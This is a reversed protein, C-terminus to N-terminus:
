PCSAWDWSAGAAPHGLLDDITEIGLLSHLLGSDRLYVKPTKVLRKKINSHYPLLYRVMFTDQLIDLYNKVTPASIGLSAAIKQANCLQGHLHALMMWFRQLATAAVRLGLAPIDRELHTRFWAIKFRVKGVWKHDGGTNKLDEM